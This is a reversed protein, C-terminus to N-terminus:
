EPQIGHAPRGLELVMDYQHDSNTFGAETLLPLVPSDAPENVIGLSLFRNQLAHIMATSAGATEGHLRLIRAARNPVNVCVAWAHAGDVSLEFGETGTRALVSARSRQWCADVDFLGPSRALATEASISELRGQPKAPPHDVLMRWTLVLVERTSRLGAGEYTRRARDNGALVELRLRRAGATAARRIMERALLSGLGQGRFAPVVGFGGCWAEDGRLAVLVLGAVQDGRRLTFSVDLAISEERVRRALQFADTSAPYPYGEYGATFVRALDGLSSECANHLTFDDLNSM